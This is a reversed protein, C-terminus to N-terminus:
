EYFWVYQEIWWQNLNFVSVVKKEEMREIMENEKRRRHKLIQSSQIVKNKSWIESVLFFHIFSLLLKFGALSQMTIIPSQKYSLELLSCHILTQIFANLTFSFISVEKEEETLNKEAEQLYDDDYESPKAAEERFESDSDTRTEDEEAIGEYPREEQATDEELPEHRMAAANSGFHNSAQASEEGTDPNRISETQSENETGESHTTETQNTALSTRETHFAEECDYFCDEDQNSASQGDPQGGADSVKLSEAMAALTASEGEM